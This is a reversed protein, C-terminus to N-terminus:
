RHHRERAAAAPPAAPWDGFLRCVAAFKNAMAEAENASSYPGHRKECGDLTVKVWHQGDAEVATINTVTM